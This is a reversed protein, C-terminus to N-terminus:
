GWCSDCGFVENAPIVEKNRPRGIGGRLVEEGDDEAVGYACLRNEFSREPARDAGCGGISWEFFAVGCIKGAPKEPM